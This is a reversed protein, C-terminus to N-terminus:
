RVPRLEGRREDWICSRLHVLYTSPCSSVIECDRRLIEAALEDLVKDVGGDLGVGDVLHPTGRSLRRQCASVKRM